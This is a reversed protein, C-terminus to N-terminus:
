KLKRSIRMRVSFFNALIADSGSVFFGTDKSDHKPREHCLIVSCEGSMSRLLKHNGIASGHVKEHNFIDSM